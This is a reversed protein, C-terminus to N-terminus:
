NLERLEDSLAQLAAVFAELEGQTLKKDVPNVGFVDELTRRRVVGPLAEYDFGAKGSIAYEGSRSILLACAEITTFDEPHQSVEHALVRFFSSLYIAHAESLGISELDSVPVVPAPSPVSAPKMIKFMVYATGVNLSVVFLIAAVAIAIPILQIQVKTM